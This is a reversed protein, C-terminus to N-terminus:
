MIIILNNCSIYREDFNKNRGKLIKHGYKEDIMWLYIKSYKSELLLHIVISTKKSEFIDM